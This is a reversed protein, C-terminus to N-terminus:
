RSGIVFSRMPASYLGAGLSMALRSTLPSAVSPSGSEDTRGVPDIASRRARPHAADFADMLRTADVKTYLQTTSLSAHGLLEQIGRLDGGRGAPAHRLFPAPRAAHRQGAPGAGRATGRRRAPHDRPSLPGGRAGVFLPDQPKLGYPCLHLYEEVAAPDGRHGARQPGQRGQRDGHDHRHREGARRASSSSPRRSACARGTSCRCSRPTAPSSGPSAPRAPAPRTDTVAVAPHASLPRPLNKPWRRPGSRRLPAVRHWHGERELHRAFSRLAALQRM